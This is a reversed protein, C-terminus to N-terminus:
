GAAGNESAFGDWLRRLRSKEGNMREHAERIGNRVAWKVVFYLACLVILATGGSMGLENWIMDTEEQCTNKDNQCTGKDNQCNYKDNM